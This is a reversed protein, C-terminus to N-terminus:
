IKRILGKTADVEVEDGNKLLRTAIKTGIVCPVQLERSVIAAHCTIGGSDTVIAGALKMAPIIKPTTSTSVLIDGKNFKYMENEDNIIKVVGAANGPFACAGSFEKINTDVVLSEKIEKEIKKAEEGVLVVGPKNGEFFAISLKIRKNLLDEDIKEHVLVDEMEYPAIMKAQAKSLQFRRMIEEFFKEMMEHSKQNALKREFKWYSLINLVDFLYKEEEDLKLKLTVEEQKYKIKNPINKIKEIEQKLVGVDESLDDMRTVVEVVTLGPGDYGFAIHSYKKTYDGVEGDSLNNALNKIKLDRLEIEEQQSTLPRNPTTLINFYEGVKNKDEVKKYLIKELYNSFIPDEFEVVTLMASYTMLKIFQEHVLNFQKLLESGTKQRLSNNVFWKSYELLPPIEKKNIEEIKKVLTKDKQLREFITGGARTWGTVETVYSVEHDKYYVGCAGLESSVVKAVKQCGEIYWFTPFIHGRKEHAMEIWKTM